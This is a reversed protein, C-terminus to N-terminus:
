SREIDSYFSQNLPYKCSVWFSIKSQRSLFEAQMPKLQPHFSIFDMKTKIKQYKIKTKIFYHCSCINSKSHNRKPTVPNERIHPVSPSGGRSGWFNTQRKRWTGRSSSKKIKHLKQGVQPFHGEIVVLRVWIPFGPYHKCLKYWGFDFKIETLIVM